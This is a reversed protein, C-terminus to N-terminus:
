QTSYVHNMGHLREEGAEMVRTQRRKANQTPFSAFRKEDLLTTGLYAMVENRMVDLLIPIGEQNRSGGPAYIPPSGSM